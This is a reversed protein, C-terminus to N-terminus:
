IVIIDTSRRISFIFDFCRLLVRCMFYKCHVNSYWRARTYHYQPLRKGPRRILEAYINYIDAGIVSANYGGAGAVGANGETSLAQRVLRQLARIEDIQRKKAAKMGEPLAIPTDMGDLCKTDAFIKYGFLVAFDKLLPWM